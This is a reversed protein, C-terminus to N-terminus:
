QGFLYWAYCEEEWGLVQLWSRFKGSEYLSDLLVLVDIIETRQVTVIAMEKALLNEKTSTEL